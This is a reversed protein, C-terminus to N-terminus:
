RVHGCEQLANRLDSKCNLVNVNNEIAKHALGEVLKAKKKSAESLRETTVRQKEREARVASEIRADNAAEDRIRSAENLQAAIKLEADLRVNAATLTLNEAELRESKLRLYQVYGFGIGLLAIVALIAYLNPMIFGRERVM